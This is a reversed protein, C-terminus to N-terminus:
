AKDPTNTSHGSELVATIPTDADGALTAYRERDAEFEKLMNEIASHHKEIDAMEVHLRIRGNFKKNEEGNSWMHFGNFLACENLLIHGYRTIRDINDDKISIRYEQKGDEVDLCQAEHTPRPECRIEFPDDKETPRLVLIGYSAKFRSYNTLSLIYNNKFKVFTHHNESPGYPEPIKLEQVPTGTQDMIVIKNNFVSIYFLYTGDTWVRDYAHPNEINTNKEFLTKGTRADILYIWGNHVTYLVDEILEFIVGREFNREWIIQGDTKACAAIQGGLGYRRQQEDEVAKDAGQNVIVFEEYLIPHPPYSYANDKDFKKQWILKLDLDYCSLQCNFEKLCIAQGDTSVWGCGIPIRNSLDTKFNHAILSCKKYNHFHVAVCLNNFFHATAMCFDPPMLEVGKGFYDIFEQYGESIPNAEPQDSDYYVWVGEQTFAFSDIEWGRKIVFEESLDDNLKVICNGAKYYFSDNITKGDKLLTVGPYEKIIGKFM